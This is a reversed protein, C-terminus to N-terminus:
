PTPIIDVTASSWDEPLYLQWTDRLLSNEGAGGFIVVSQRKTDHFMVHGYRAPPASVINLLHWMQGDFVWTDNLYWPAETTAGGFLVIQQNDPAYVARADSRHPDLFADLGIWSRGNWLWTGDFGSPTAVVVDQAAFDVLAHGSGGPAVGDSVEQWDTGDWAWMDYFFEGTLANWGGHMIVRDRASDYAMAHCCRAPPKHAPEVLQWDQGDWEWTDDFLTEQMSGGFIVMRDRSEDYAMAVKERAPPSTAADAQRWDDGDWIWTEDSWRNKYIGGFVVGEGSNTDYAFGSHTMAPPKHFPHLLIWKPQPSCAPLIFIFLLVLIVIRNRMSFHDGKQLQCPQSCLM